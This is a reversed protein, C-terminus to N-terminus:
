GRLRRVRDIDVSAADILGEEVMREIIRRDFHSGYHTSCGKAHLRHDGHVSTYVWGDKLLNLFQKSKQEYEHETFPNEGFQGGNKGFICVAAKGDIDRHEVAIGGGAQTSVIVPWDKPFKSLMEIFDEVTRPGQWFGYDEM